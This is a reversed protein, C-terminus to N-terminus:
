DLLLPSLVHEEAISGSLSLEQARAPTDRVWRSPPPLPQDTLLALLSANTVEVSDIPTAHRSGRVVVMDANLMKALARKEALPTFDKEAAIMLIRSKVQDLRDLVAWRTLAFGTGLYAAASVAGLARAAHERMARQWPEPFLRAAALCAARPMGLLRVLTATVYTELWKRADLPRYSALSNILGIRPVRSPRQAAMELAVAGGLSFGVINTTTIGLHDMLKWLAAAFGAITYKDPPPLSHGSGPLDPVIM